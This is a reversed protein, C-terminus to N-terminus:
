VDVVHIYSKSQSGDGLIVLKTPDKKLRRLFDFGVGHTQRGGVVNAFRFAVSKIGFMHSYSCLLAECGLKSAGYTSIPRMPGHNEALVVSGHEGYVGSGSFYVIKSIGVRRAAEFVNQALVTGQFFDIEPFSVAKSIDPNAALHFVTDRNECARLVADKDSLDGEIVEVGAARLIKEHNRNGSSFNDFVRVSSGAKVLRECLHSGIFGAGGTVIIKKM